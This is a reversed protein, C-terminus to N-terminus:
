AASMEGREIFREAKRQQFNQARVAFERALVFVSGITASSTGLLALIFDEGSMAFSLIVLKGGLADVILSRQPGIGTERVVAQGVACLSSTMTALRDTLEQREPGSSASGNNASAVEFGDPTCVLLHTLDNSQKALLQLNELNWQVLQKNIKM